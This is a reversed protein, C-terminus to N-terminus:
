AASETSPAEDVRSIEHFAHIMHPFREGGFTACWEFGDIRPTPCEDCTFAERDSCWSIDHKGYGSSAKNRRADPLLYSHRKDAPKGCDCEHALYVQTITRTTGPAIGM